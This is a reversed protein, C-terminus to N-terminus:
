KMAPFMARAFIKSVPAVHVSFASFCLLLTGKQKFSLSGVLVLIITSICLQNLLLTETLITFFTGKWGLTM